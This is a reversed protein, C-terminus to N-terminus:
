YTFYTIIDKFTKHLKTICDGHNSFVKVIHSLTHMYVVVRVKRGTPNVVTNRPVDLLRDNETGYPRELITNEENDM